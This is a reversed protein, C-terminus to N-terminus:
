SLSLKQGTSTSDSLAKSTPWCRWDKKQYALYLLTRDFTMGTYITEWSIDPHTGNKTKTTDSGIWGLKVEGRLSVALFCNNAVFSYTKLRSDPEGQNGDSLLGNGGNNLKGVVTDAEDESIQSAKLAGDAGGTYVVTDANAGCVGLSWIHKGAHHRLSSRQRLQFGSAGSSSEEWSLDWILCASDEGHSVLGWRCRGSEAAPLFHVGWIRAEHGFARAVCSESSGHSDATAPASGFGTSRLEFGDTAYASRDHQTRQECDSIDWVRVTRDDSCSALLRGAAGERLGPIKPSIEVGFISGEHGTFFHHISSTVVMSSVNDHKKDASDGDLFCSWVIIEGFVTGAVVLVHTPSLGVTDASYLISKVGTAVQQLCIRESYRSSEVGDVVHLHLLANHATVLFARNLAASEKRGDIIPRVCGSLIWDPALCEASAASLSTTHLRSHSPETGQTFRVVLEIIRISQGGWCLLRIYEEAEPADQLCQRLVLFGHVNNRAFTRLGTLLKGGKEDILRSYPGQGQFM